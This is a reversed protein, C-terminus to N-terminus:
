LVRLPQRRSGWKGPKAEFVGAIRHGCSACADGDLKWTLLEYWDRQIVVEGCGPCHTADGAKDHVNGTYVYHLGKSRAIRRARSLTEPPTAPVDLMKFDPHFASFHLPVDPGLERAFWDTLENLEDDGDNHGPILLTTVETWVPTEHVLWKLTDLVPELHAFCLKHYFDETFAKLDV